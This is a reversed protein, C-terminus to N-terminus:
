RQFFHSFFNLVLEFVSQSSTRQTEDKVNWGPPDCLYKPNPSYIGRGVCKYLNAPNPDITTSNVCCAGDVCDKKTDACPPWKCTYDYPGGICGSGQPPPSCCKGVVLNDTGGPPCDSDTLCEVCRGDYCCGAQGNKCYCAGLSTKLDAGSIYYELLTSAGLCYDTKEEECRQTTTNFGRATGKVNYNIGGDSDSAECCSCDFTCRGNNGCTYGPWKEDCSADAGCAQECAGDGAKSNPCLDAVGQTTSERRNVTCGGTEGEGSTILCYGDDALHM